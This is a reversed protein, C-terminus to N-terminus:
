ERMLKEIQEQVYQRTLFPHMKAIGKCMMKTGFIENRLNFEDETVRGKVSSAGIISFTLHALSVQSIIGIHSVVNPRTLKSFFILDGPRGCTIDKGHFLWANLQNYQDFVGDALDRYCMRTLGSCDLGGEKTKGGLVYIIEAACLKKACEIAKGIHFEAYRQADLVISDADINM